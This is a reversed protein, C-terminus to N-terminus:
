APSRVLTITESPCPYTSALPLLLVRSRAQGQRPQATSSTLIFSEPPCSYTSAPPWSTSSPSHLAMTGQPSQFSAPKIRSWGSSLTWTNLTEQNPKYSSDKSGGQIIKTRPTRGTSATTSDTPITQNPAGLPLPLPLARTGQAWNQLQPWCNRLCM